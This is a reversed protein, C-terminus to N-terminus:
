LRGRDTGWSASSPLSPTRVRCIMLSRHTHAQLSSHLSSLGRRCHHTGNDHNMESIIQLIIMDM